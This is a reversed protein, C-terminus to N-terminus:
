LKKAPAIRSIGKKVSAVSCIKLASGEWRHSTIKRPAHGLASAYKSHTFARERAGCVPLTEIYINKVGKKAKNSSYTTVFSTGSTEVKTPPPTIMALRTTKRHALRLAHPASLMRCFMALRSLFCTKKYPQLTIGMSREFCPKKGSTVKAVANLRSFNIRKM